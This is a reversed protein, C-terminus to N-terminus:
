GANAGYVHLFIASSGDLPTGKRYVLSIPIRTGDDARAFIRESRYQEADHGIVVERKKLVRTKQELDYDYTSLPTLLSTYGFRFLDTDFEENVAAWCDYTPEAFEIMHEAGTEITRVRIQPLGDKREMLVLHRSFALVDEIMVDERHPMVLKWSEREPAAIPAEYLAFNMAGENTRIFFREDHHEVDYEVGQRRPEVMRFEGLPDDASLYHVESSIASELDMLIFADSRTRYVWLFFRDDTEEYILPDLEPDTGLVHRYLKYPRNAGDLVNYFITRDDNAWALTYSTGAITEPLSEGSRLNKFHLIFQEDGELDVSFALWEHSPSVDLVGLSIYKRGVALENVDLIIEEEGDLSGHKRCYIRYAKGKETRSYYWWDDIRYAVSSDDEKIRSLLEGYLKEQQPKTHAMSSETYRNEEELYAIVSPDERNKLWHYDDARVDGHLASISRRKEAIPPV